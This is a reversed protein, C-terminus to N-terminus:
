HYWIRLLQGGLLKEKEDFTFTIRFKEIIDADIVTEPAELMSFYGFDSTGPASQSSVVESVSRTAEINSPATASHIPALISKGSGSGGPSRRSTMKLWSPVGVSWTAERAPAVQSDSVSASPPPTTGPPYTHNTPLTSIPPIDVTGNKSPTTTVPVFSSERRSIHTFDDAPDSSESISSFRSQLDQASRLLTSLKFGSSSRSPEVNPATQAREQARSAPPLLGTPRSTTTDVVLPANSLEKSGRYNRVADRIRELAVPFDQFYAFFYSDIVYNESKDAVKIEITESFDM